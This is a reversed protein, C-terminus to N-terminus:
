TLSLCSMRPMWWSNRQRRCPSFRALAAPPVEIVQEPVLVDFAALLVLPQDVMQPVPVDLAPSGPVADVIQDVTRWLDRDQPRVESLRDPRARRARRVPQLAGAPTHPSGPDHGYLGVRAEVGRGQCDETRTLLHHTSEVLAMADTMREHRLWSRLRRQRRRQLMGRPSSALTWEEVPSAFLPVRPISPKNNHTTTTTTNNNNNQVRTSSSVM